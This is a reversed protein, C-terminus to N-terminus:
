NSLLYRTFGDLCYKVAEQASNIAGEPVRLVHPPRNRARPLRRFNRFSNCSTGDLDFNHNMPRAPGPHNKSVVYCLAAVLEFTDWGVM